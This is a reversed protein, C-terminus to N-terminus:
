YPAESLAPAAWGGREAVLALARERAVITVTRHM